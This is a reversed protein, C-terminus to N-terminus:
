ANARVPPVDELYMEGPGLRDYWTVKLIFSTVGFVALGVLTRGWQQLVLYVPFAVMAMQWVIGVGVNFLDRGCDRNPQLQPSVARCKRLIPGWRGWPRVTRYFRMLVEDEEPRTLLCVIVSVVGSFALISLFM